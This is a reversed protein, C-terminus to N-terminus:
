QLIKSIVIRMKNNKSLIFQDTKIFTIKIDESINQKFKEQLENKQQLSIDNEIPDYLFEITDFDMQIFQYKKVNIDAHSIIAQGIYPSVMSGDRRVLMDSTRGVLNTITSRTPHLTGPPHVEGVDGVQYRILPQAYNFLSTILLSNDCTIRSDEEVRGSEIIVHEDPIIYPGNQELQYGLSNIEGCGYYCKVPAKFVQAIKEGWQDPLYESTAFLAIIKRPSYGVEEAFLALNYLASAYGTIVCPSKKDIVSLYESINIRSLEYAPLFVIGLAYDRVKTRFSTKSPFGLSGGFLKINPIGPKWGMWMEGRIDAHTALARARRDVITKLPEGTTGGTGAVLYDNPKGVSSRLREGAFRIDDKTLIPIKRIDSLTSFDGPKLGKNDFLEHYYPVNNYAHKILDLFANQRFVALQDTNAKDGYDLIKIAELVQKNSVLDAYKAIKYALKRSMNAGM